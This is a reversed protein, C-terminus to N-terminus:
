YTTTIQVPGYGLQISVEVKTVSDKYVGKVDSVYLIYAKDPANGTGTYYPTGVSLPKTASYFCDSDLAVKQPIVEPKSPNFNYVLDHIGEQVASFAKKEQILRSGIVYDETSLTLAMISLSMILLVAMLAVVLAYGRENNFHM